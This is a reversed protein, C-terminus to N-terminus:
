SRGKWTVEEEDKCAFYVVKMKENPLWVGGMDKFNHKLFSFVLGFLDITM